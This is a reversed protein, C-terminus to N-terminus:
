PITRGLSDHNRVFRLGLLITVGLSDHPRLSGPNRCMFHMQLDFHNQSISKVHSLPLM